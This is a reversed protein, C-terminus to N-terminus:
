PREAIDSGRSSRELAGKVDDVTCFLCDGGIQVVGRNFSVRGNLAAAGAIVGDRGVMATEVVEGTSLPIVLSIVANTPFYIESVADHVDFVMDHQKLERHGLLATM